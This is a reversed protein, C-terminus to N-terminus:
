LAESKGGNALKKFYHRKKIRLQGEDPAKKEHIISKQLTIGVKKGM